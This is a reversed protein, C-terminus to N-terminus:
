GPQRALLWELRFLWQQPYWVNQLTVEGSKHRSKVHWRAGLLQCSPLCSPNTQDLSDQVWVVADFQSLLFRLREEPALEPQLAGTNRGDSDYPLLTNGPLIFNFREYQGTFGNPVAIRRGQWQNRVTDSYGVEPTSLPAVMASFTAYVALCAVLSANRSWRPVIGGALLAILGVSAALLTLILQTSSAIQLEGMVWGIRALMVLAPALILLTIWFWVKPIKDWTLAMWIALAPMAPIVYRASRQSPLTFVVLWVLLWVLLIRQAPSLQLSNRRKFARVAGFLMWGLVVFFLLGANEPYAM